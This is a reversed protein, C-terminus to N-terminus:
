TEDDWNLTWINSIENDYIKNQSRADKLLPSPVIKHNWIINGNARTNEVFFKVSTDDDTGKQVREWKILGYDKGKYGSFWFDESTIPHREFNSINVNYFGYVENLITSDTLIHSTDAVSAIRRGFQIDNTTATETIHNQVWLGTEFVSKELYRESYADEEYINIYQYYGSFIISGIIFLMFVKTAVIKNKSDKIINFLGMSAFPIAFIPIFWKMYTQEYVFVTLFMLSLILFWEGFEKNRKFVLYLFGGIAPIFLLGVYRIYNIYVPAYRTQEIFKGTFFPISFMFGFGMIIFFPLYKQIIPQDSIRLKDKLLFTCYLIFFAGIVPLLFYFLHHVTFLLFGFILTLPVFKLSKRCRLLLFIFLPALMVFLGRTPITWTSYGLVGPSLPLAFATLIKYLDDDFIESAMLYSAFMSILGIILCYLFITWRMELGSLQSFGSVLFQMASTYSAPYLGFYSLPDLTWKASGYETISNAMAHMLFSDVGIENSVVQNRLIINLLFLPIFLEVMTRISIKM